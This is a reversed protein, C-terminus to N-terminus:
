KANQWIEVQIKINAECNFKKFFGAQLKRAFSTRIKKNNLYLCLKRIFANFDNIPVIFGNKNNTIIDEAGSVDTTVVSMQAAAAEMLVRAFGEYWSTLIFIDNRKFLEITKARNLSGYLKVNSLKNKTIFREIKSREPGDGVINFQMGTNIKNIIKLLMPINKQKVLRGCFLINLKNNFPKHAIKFNNIDVPIIPKYIVPKKLKSRLEKYTKLGDVLISDANKLVMIALGRTLFDYTYKDYPNSGYVCVIFKIKYIRALICGVLGLPFPDQVQLVTIKKNKIIQRAKSLIKIILIVKWWSKIGILNLNKAKYELESNKRPLKALITLSNVRSAYQKYRFFSDGVFEGDQSFITSDYNLILINQKIM